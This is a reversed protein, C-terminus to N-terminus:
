KRDLELAFVLAYVVFVRDVAAYSLELGYKVAARDVALAIALSHVCFGEIERHFAGAAAKKPTICGRGVEIPLAVHDFRPRELSRNLLRAAPPRDQHAMVLSVGNTERGLRLFVAFPQPNGAFESHGASFASVRCFRNGMCCPAADRHAKRDPVANPRTPGTEIITLTHAVERGDVNEFKRNGAYWGIRVCRNFRQFPRVSTSSTHSCPAPTGTLRDRDPWQEAPGCLLDNARCQFSTRM